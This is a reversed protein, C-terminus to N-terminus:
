LRMQDFFSLCIIQLTNALQRLLPVILKLTPPQDDLLHHFDRLNDDDVTM